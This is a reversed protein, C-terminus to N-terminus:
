RLEIMNGNHTGHYRADDRRLTSVTKRFMRTQSLCAVAAPWAASATHRNPPTIYLCAGMRVDAISAPLSPSTSSPLALSRLCQNHTAGAALWALCRGVTRATKIFTSTKADVCCCLASPVSHQDPVSPTMARLHPM